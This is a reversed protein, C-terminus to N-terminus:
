RRHPLQHQLHTRRHDEGHHKLRDVVDHVAIKHRVHRLVALDRDVRQCQCKRHLHHHDGDADAGAHACIREDRARETLAVSLLCPAAAPM